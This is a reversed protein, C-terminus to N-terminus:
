RRVHVPVPQFYFVTRLQVPFIGRVITSATLAMVDALTYHLNKQM